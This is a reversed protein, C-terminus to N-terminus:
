LDPARGHGKRSVGSGSAGAIKSNGHINTLQNRFLAWIQHDRHKFNQRRSDSTRLYSSSRSWAPSLTLFGVPRFPSTALSRSVSRTGWKQHGSPRNTYRVLELDLDLDCDLDLDSNPDWDTDLLVWSWRPPRACSPHLVNMFMWKESSRPICSALSRACFRGRQLSIDKCLAVCEYHHM